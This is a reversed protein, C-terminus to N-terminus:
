QGSNKAGAMVETVAKSNLFITRLDDDSVNAACAEVIQASQVFATHSAVEDGRKRHLRGLDAYTRWAVLPAPHGELEQLGAAFENAAADLDGRAIAIRAKLRHAEAIYKHVEHDNATDLLRQAFEAAKELEGQKLWHWATAAELRINYRWRFWADREFIERTEKFASATEEIKGSV